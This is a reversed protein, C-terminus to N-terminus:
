TVASCSPNFGALYSEIEHSPMPKAYLYGQALFCGESKLFNVQEKTEVGEAIVDLQLSKGLAIVARIIAADNTDDPTNKVFSQDIKLKSIPLSKLYALSSYGIGFDDIALKFGIDRLQHLVESALGPDNMITTETIEFELQDPEVGTEELIDLIKQHFEIDDLQRRSLNCNIIHANILGNDRWIRAQQCAQKFIWAGMPQILYTEEALPIFQGPPVIGLEPHNWRVLAEIGIPKGSRIDIQPQYYLELEERALADRLDNEMIVRKFALSTMEQTYYSFTNRGQEKAKYMATDANRILTNADLGDIPYTSIGISASLFFKQNHVEFPKKFSHLLKEAVTVTSETHEVNDLIVTFEDGGIRAITDQERIHYKLRNAAEMLLKDGTPHGFSDNVGKFRDLDIFLLTILTKNRKAKYIAQQLRDTFLLRNPLGTLPDHHAIHVLRNENQKLQDLVKLYETIDHGSEIIGIINYQEDFLPNALLEITRIKGDQTLHNHIVKTKKRTQIIKRLPCPHDKGCCPEHTNYSVEYCKPKKNLMAFDPANNRIVKNMLHVTHDTGIMMIPESVGDIVQQLLAHQQENKSQAAKLSSINRAVAFVFNEDEFQLFNAVIEVPICHGDRHQLVSEYRQSGSLKLLAYQDTWNKASIEPAIDIMSMTLLAESQYGLADCTSPNVYLFRGEADILFVTESIHDVAYQTLALQREALKRDTIDRVTGISKLPNGDADFSTEGQETVWKIRGDSFLLRHTIKYPQRNELSAKYTNDVFNRDDPHVTKLFADYSTDFDTREFEFIRFIEDSWSLQNTPHDLTWSGTQSIRQAEALEHNSIRVENELTKNWQKLQEEVIRRRETEDSLIRNLKNLSHNRWVMLGLSTLILVSFMIGIIRSISWFSPPTAYWKAYIKQYEQSRLVETIAVELRELLEAQHKALGIARKVEILPPSIMRIRDAAGIEQFMRWVVPEPYALADLRGSILEILAKSFHEFRNLYYGKGAL